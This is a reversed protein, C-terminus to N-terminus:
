TCAPPQALRELLAAVQRATAALDADNEIVDTARRRKVALPAQAAERRALEDPSWGRAAARRARTADSAHVFVVHDCLDVLGGELLLPADLLVAAGATRAAALDALIRARIRPHLLAELRARATADAFVIRAMAARDLEPTGGSGTALVNPGFTAALEQLVAPEETVARAHADACIHRLGHAAFLGAVTSKGAAVGGLIGIVVPKAPRFPHKPPQPRPPEAPM